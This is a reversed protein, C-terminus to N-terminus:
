KNHCFKCTRNNISFSTCLNCLVYEKKDRFGRIVLRAKYRVSGDSELKRKFFMRSDLINPRYTKTEILRDVIEWVDNKIMVEIEEDIARMWNQRQPSNIAELYTEPDNQLKVLLSFYTEDWAKDVEEVQRSTEKLNSLAKAFEAEIEECEINDIDYEDDSLNLNKTNESTKM